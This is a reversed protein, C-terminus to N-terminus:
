KLILFNSCCVSMQVARLVFPCYLIDNRMTVGRRKLDPEIVTRLPMGLSGPVLAQVPDGGFCFEYHGSPRRRVLEAARRFQSQRSSINEVAAPVRIASPGVVAAAALIRVFERRRVNAESIGPPLHLDYLCFGTLPIGIDAKPRNASVESHTQLARQTGSAAV